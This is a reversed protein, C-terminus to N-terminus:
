LDLALRLETPSPTAAVTALVRRQGSSGDPPAVLEYAGVALADVRLRGNADTACAVAAGTRPQVLSLGRHTVPRGAHDTLTLDLAGREIAIQRELVQGPALEIPEAAMPGAGGSTTELAFGYTGAQVREVDFRGDADVQVRTRGREVAVGESGPELRLLLAKAPGLRGDVTLRGVLRAPELQALDLTLAHEAGARIEVTGARHVLHQAGPVPDLVRLEVRWEGPLLGDLRFRGSPDISAQRPALELQKPPLLLVAPRRPGWARDLIEPPTVRGHLATGTAVTVDIRGARPDLDSELRTAHEAGTVRVAVRRASAPVPLVVAGSADTTGRAHLWAHGSGADVSAFDLADLAFSTISPPHTGNDDLLEVSTGVVPQGDPGFVHVQVPRVREVAVEVTGTSPTWEFAVPASPAHLGDDPLVLLTTAGRPVRGVNAEGDPHRAPAARQLSPRAGRSDPQFWGWGFTEVPAGDEADVVQVYLTEARELLVVVGREGFAFARPDRLPDFGPADFVELHVPPEPPAPSSLVFGGGSDSRGEAILRGGPAVVRVGAGAIAAGSPDVVRGTLQEEPGPRRLTVTRLSGVASAAVTLEIPGIPTLHDPAHVRWRGPEIGGALSAFGLGDSRLRHRRPTACRDTSPPVRVLELEADAIPDGRTDLLALTLPTARVLELPGLKFR